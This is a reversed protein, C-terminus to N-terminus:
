LKICKDAKNILLADHSVFLVTKNCNNIFQIIWEKTNADLNNDPEDFILINGKRLLARAISIRQKEGGSLTNDNYTIYRDSLAIIGLQRMVNYVNDNTALLNGIQINEFVSGEFLYPNQQVLSFQNRWYQIDIKRLDYENLFIEGEYNEKLGVLLQILSSKGSGNKGIIAVKDGNEILMNLNSIVKMKNYSLSINNFEISKIIGNSVGGQREADSYFLEMRKVDNKYKEINKILEGTDNIIKSYVDFFGIMTLINGASILEKSLLLSGIVIIFLYCLSDLWSVIINIVTNYKCEKKIIDHYHNNFICDLRNIMARKLRYLIIIDPRKFIETEYSGVMSNYERNKIIFEANKKKIIVPIILKILLISVTFVTFACSITLSKYLIYVLTIPLIILSESVNIWDCRLSTPDDDLRAQVEGCSIENAKDYRKNIYALICKRDHKLSNKFMVVEGFMNLFPIVLVTLAFSLMVVGFNRMAESYDLCFISDFFTGLKSATFISIINGLLDGIIYICLVPTMAQICDKKICYFVNNKTKM